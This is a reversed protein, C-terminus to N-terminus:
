GPEGLSPKGPIAAPPSPPRTMVWQLSSASRQQSKDMREAGDPESERPVTRARSGNGAQLRLPPRPPVHQANGAAWGRRPQCRHWSGEQLWWAESPKDKPISFRQTWGQLVAGWGVPQEGDTLAVASLHSLFSTHEDWSIQGLGLGTGGCCGVWGGEVGGMAVERQEQISCSNRRGEGLVDGVAAARESMRSNNLTHKAEQLHLKTAPFPSSVVHAAAERRVEPLREAARARPVPARLAAASPQCCKQGGPTLAWHPAGTGWRAAQGQM